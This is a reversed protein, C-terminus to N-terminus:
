GGELLPTWILGAVGWRSRALLPADRLYGDDVVESPGKKQRRVGRGGIANDSVKELAVDPSFRRTKSPKAAFSQM